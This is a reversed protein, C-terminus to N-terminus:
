YNAVYRTYQTGALKYGAKRCHETCNKRNNKAINVFAKPLIRFIDDRYCGLNKTGCGRSPKPKPQPKGGVAVSFMCVSHYKGKVKGRFIV